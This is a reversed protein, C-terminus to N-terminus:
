YLLLLPIVDVINHLWAIAAFDDKADFYIGCILGGVFATLAQVETVMLTQGFALNTLHAAGFILAAALTGKKVWRKAVGDQGWRSNLVRQVSGRFLYEETWGVFVGQFALQAAVFGVGYSFPSGGSSSAPSSTVVQVVVVLAALLGFSKLRRVQPFPRLVPGPTGSLRLIGYALLVFLVHTVYEIALVLEPSLGV